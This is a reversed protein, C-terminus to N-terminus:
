LGLAVARALAKVLETVLPKARDSQEIHEVAAIIRLTEQLKGNAAKEGAAQKKNRRGQRIAVADILSPCALDVRVPRGFPWENQLWCSQPTGAVKPTM